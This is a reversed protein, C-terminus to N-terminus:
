AGRNLCEALTEIAILGLKVAGEGVASDDAVVSEALRAALLTGRNGKEVAVSGADDEACNVRAVCGTDVNLLKALTHWVPGQRRLLDFDDLEREGTAV